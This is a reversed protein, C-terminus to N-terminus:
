QIRSLGLIEYICRKGCDDIIKSHPDSQLMNQYGAWTKMYETVRSINWATEMKVDDVRFRELCSAEFFIM